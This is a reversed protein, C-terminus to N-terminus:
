QALRKQRRKDGKKNGKKFWQRAIREMQRGARSQQTALEPSSHGGRAQLGKRNDGLEPSSHGGRGHLGKCDAKCDKFKCKDGMESQQARRQRAIRQRGARSTALELQLTNRNQFVCVTQPRRHHLKLVRGASPLTHLAQMVHGLEIHDM